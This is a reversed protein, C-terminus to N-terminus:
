RHEAGRQPADLVEAVGGRALVSDVDIQVARQQSHLGIIGPGCADAGASVAFLGRSVCLRIAARAFCYSALVLVKVCVRQGALTASYVVGEVDESLKPGIALESLKIESPDGSM